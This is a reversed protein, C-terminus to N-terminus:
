LLVRIVRRAAMGDLDGKWRTSARPLPSKALPTNAVDAALAVATLLLVLAWVAIRRLCRM